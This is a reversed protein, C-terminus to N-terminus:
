IIFLQCNIIIQRTSLIEGSSLGRCSERQTREATVCPWLDSGLADLVPVVPLHTRLLSAPLPLKREPCLTDSASVSCELSSLRQPDVLAMVM